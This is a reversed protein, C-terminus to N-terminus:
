LRWGTPTSIISSAASIFFPMGMVFVGVFVDLLIGLEVLVPLHLAVATGFAYVGNELALYTCRRRRRRIFSAIDFDRERILLTGNM